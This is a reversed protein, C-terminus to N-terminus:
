PQRGVGGPGGSAPDFIQYKPLLSSFDGSRFAQIPVTLRTNGGSRVLTGQFNGFVFFKNRILPGGLTAGFNNWVFHGPGLPETFPNRAFLDNVRNYEFVSGHLNNTGSKTTMLIMARAVQGFEVDYNTTSVTYEQM